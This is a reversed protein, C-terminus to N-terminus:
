AVAVCVIFILLNLSIFFCAHFLHRGECADARVCQIARRVSPWPIVVRALNRAGHGFGPLARSVPIGLSFSALGFGCQFPDQDVVRFRGSLQEPPRNGRLNTM